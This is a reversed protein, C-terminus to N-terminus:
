QAGAFRAQSSKGGIVLAVVVTAKVALPAALRGTLSNAGSPVLAVVESKGGALVTAKGSFSASDMPKNADNSVYVMLQDAKIALELWQEASSEVVQGGHQAAPPQGHAFSSAPIALLVVAVLIHRIM